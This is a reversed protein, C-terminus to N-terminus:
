NKTTLYTRRHAQPDFCNLRGAEMGDEIRIKMEEVAETLKNFSEEIKTKELFGKEVERKISKPAQVTYAPADIRGTLIVDVNQHEAVSKQVAKQVSYYFATSQFGETLARSVVTQSVSVVKSDRSPELAKGVEGLLRVVAGEVLDSTGSIQERMTNELKPLSASYRPLTMSAPCEESVPRDAVADFMDEDPTKSPPTAVEQPSAELSRTTVPPKGIYKADSPAAAVRSGDHLIYNQNRVATLNDDCECISKLM